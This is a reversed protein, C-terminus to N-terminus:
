NILNLFARETLTKVGLKQAEQLKSGPNEGVIVYSTKKSVSESVNGGATRIREKAEERSLSGLSGTLVFTFGQLTKKVSTKSPNQVVVGSSLVRSLVKENEKSDFWESITQPPLFVM